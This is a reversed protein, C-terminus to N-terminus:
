CTAWGKEAGTHENVFYTWYTQQGPRAYCRACLLDLGAHQNNAHNQPQSLGEGCRSAEGLRQGVDEPWRPARCHM